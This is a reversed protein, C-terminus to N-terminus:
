LLNVFFLSLIYLLLLHLPYFIYLLYKINKGKQHNYLNIFLLSLSTGIALYIQIMNPYELYSIFYKMLVALIFSINMYLKHNKFFYFLFIILPGFWGYDCHMLQSVFIIVIVSFWGIIKNKCQDFITIALLGLLLTFFINLTFHMTGLCSLFLMFPIQSIIGFTFLRFIYKKLNKTHVYGESIQFAFIPFSLKGIINMFSIRHFLIYGLHDCLMTILAIIKLGFSTM